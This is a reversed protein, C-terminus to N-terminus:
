LQFLEKPLNYIKCNSINLNQIHSLSDLYEYEFEYLNIGIASPLVLQYDMFFIPDNNSYDLNYSTLDISRTNSNFKLYNFVITILNESIM